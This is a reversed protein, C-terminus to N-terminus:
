RAMGPRRRMPDTWTEVHIGSSGRNRRLWGFFSSLTALVVRGLPDTRGNTRRELGPVGSRMSEDFVVWIDHSTIGAVPKDGWCEALGGKIVITGSGDPAGTTM